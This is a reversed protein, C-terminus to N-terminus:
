PREAEMMNAVNAATENGLRSSSSMETEKDERSGYSVRASDAQRQSAYIVGM